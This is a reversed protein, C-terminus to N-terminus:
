LFCFIHTVNYHFLFNLLAGMYHSFLIFSIFIFPFSFQIWSLCSFSYICSSFLLCFLIFVLFFCVITFPIFSSLNTDGKVNEYGCVMSELRSEIEAQVWRLGWAMDGGLVKGSQNELPLQKSVQKAASATLVMLPKYLSSGRAHDKVWRECVVYCYALFSTSGGLPAVDLARRSSEESFSEGPLFDPFGPDSDM